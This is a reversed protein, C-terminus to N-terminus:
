QVWAVQTGQTVQTVTADTMSSIFYISSNKFIEKSYAEGPYWRLKFVIFKSLGLKLIIIYRTVVVVLLLYKIQGFSVRM